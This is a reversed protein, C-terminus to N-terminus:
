VGVSGDTKGAAEKGSSCRYGDGPAGNNGDSSGVCAPAPTAWSPGAASLIAALRMGLAQAISSSSYSSSFTIIEQSSLAASTDLGERHPEARLINQWTRHPPPHPENGVQHPEHLVPTELSPRM